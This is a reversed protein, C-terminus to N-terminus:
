SAPKKLIKSIRSKYAMLKGTFTRQNFAELGILTRTQDMWDKKYNESGVGYDIEDVDDHELVHELMDRTLISGVSFDKFAEDYALKYILAKRGSLIWLQAAVAKGDVYLVGMRLVGMESGLRCLERIFDPFQESDKWSNEYVANYDDVADEEYARLIRVSFEHAKALKKEKRKITNKVRSSRLAYYESFTNGGLDAFYNEFMFYPNVFFGADSISRIVSATEAAGQYMLRLNLSQWRPTEKSIYEIIESVPAGGQAKGTSFVPAFEMTYFNSMSILTRASPDCVLFLYCKPGTGDDQGSVYIRTEKGGFVNQGTLCRFWEVSSFINQQKSYSLRDIDEAPLEDISSYVRVSM